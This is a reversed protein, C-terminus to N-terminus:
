EEIWEAPICSYGYKNWNKSTTLFVDMKQSIKILEGHTKETDIGDIADKSFVGTKTNKPVNNGNFINLISDIGNSVKNSNGKGILESLYKYANNKNDPTVKGNFNITATIVKVAQDKLDKKSVYRCLFISDKSFKIYGNDYNGLFTYKNNVLDDYLSVVHYADNGLDNLVVAYHESPDSRGSHKSKEIMSIEKQNRDQLDKLTKYFKVRERSPTVYDPSNKYAISFYTNWDILEKTKRVFLPQSIDEVDRTVEYSTGLDQIVFLIEWQTATAQIQNLENSNYLKSGDKNAVVIKRPIGEPTLQIRKEQCGSVISSSWLIFIIVGIKINKM